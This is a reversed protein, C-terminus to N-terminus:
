VVKLGHQLVHEQFEIKEFLMVEVPRGIAEELQTWVEFRDGKFGRLVVDIDSDARFQYPQIVSGVFYIEVGSARFLTTVATKAKQLTSLRLAEGAEKRAKEKQELTHRAKEPDFEM